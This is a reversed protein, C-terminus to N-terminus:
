PDRILISALKQLEGSMAGSGTGQQTQALKQQQMMYKLRQDM